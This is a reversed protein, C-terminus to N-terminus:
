DSVARLWRGEEEVPADPEVGASQDVEWQLRRRALPSLGFRDELLRVEALVRMSAVGRQQDLLQALRVLTPVDAPLYVAAMPSSWVLEWWVRTADQM